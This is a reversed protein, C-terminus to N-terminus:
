CFPVDAWNMGGPVDLVSSVGERLVNLLGTAFDHDFAGAFPLSAQFMRRLDGGQQRTLFQRVDFGQARCEQAQLCLVVFHHVLQQPVFEPAFPDGVAGAADDRGAIARTGACAASGCAGGDRQM